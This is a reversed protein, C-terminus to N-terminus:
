RRHRWRLVSVTLVWAAVAILPFPSSPAIGVAAGALLAVLPEGFAWILQAVISLDGAPSEVPALLRAPLPGKLSANLRVLVGFLVLAVAGSLPAWVATGTFVSGALVTAIVLTGLSALPFSAHYIILTRDNIGYLPYDSGVHTAHRLGQGFVGTAFYLLVAALAALSVTHAPLMFALSLLVGAAVTTAVATALRRPTRILGIADRLFFALPLGQAYRVARVRRGFRPREQYVTATLSFDLTSSFAVAADWKAAQSALRDISLSNLMRPTFLAFCLTLASLRALVLIVHIPAEDAVPYALAIWGWPTNALPMSMASGLLAVVLVGLGLLTATRPFAQGVISCLTAIAGTAVGAVIFGLMGPVSAAGASMLAAGAFGATIAAALGSGATATAVPRLLTNSRKLDNTALAYLLFPPLLAPGRNQGVLLAAAWLVAVLLSVLEPAQDSTLLTVGNESTVWLWLARAIPAIAIAAALSLLYARYM